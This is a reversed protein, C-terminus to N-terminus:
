SSVAKGALDVDTMDIVAGGTIAVSKSYLHVAVHRGADVTAAWATVSDYARVTVSGDALANDLEAQTRVTRKTDTSEM